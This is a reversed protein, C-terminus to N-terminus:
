RAVEILACVVDDPCVDDLDTLADWADAPTEYPPQEAVEAWEPGHSATVYGILQDGLVHCMAARVATPGWHDRLEEIGRLLAPDHTPADHTAATL